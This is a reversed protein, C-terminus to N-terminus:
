KKRMALIEEKTLPIGRIQADKYFLNEEPTLAQNDTTVTKVPQFSGATSHSSSTPKVSSLNIQNKLKIANVM